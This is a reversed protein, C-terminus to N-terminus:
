RTAEKMWLVVSRMLGGFGGAAVGTGPPFHAQDGVTSATIDEIKSTASSGPVPLGGM